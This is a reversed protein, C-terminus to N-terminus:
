GAWQGIKKAIIGAGVQNVGNVDALEQELLPHLDFGPTGFHV